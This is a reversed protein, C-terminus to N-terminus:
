EAVTGWLSSRLPVVAAADGRAWSHVIVRRQFKWESGGAELAGTCVIVDEHRGMSILEGHMYASWYSVNGVRAQSEVAPLPRLCINGEWHLGGAFKGHLMTCLGSLKEAGAM